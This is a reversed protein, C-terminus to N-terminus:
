LVPLSSSSWRPSNWRWGKECNWRFFCQSNGCQCHVHSRNNCTTAPATQGCPWLSADTLSSSELFHNQKKELNDLIHVPHFVFRSMGRLVQEVFCVCRCAAGKENLKVRMWSHPAKTKQRQLFCFSKKFFLVSTFFSRRVSLSHLCVSFAFPFNLCTLFSFLSNNNHQLSFPTAWWLRTQVDWSVTEIKGFVSIDCCVQPTVRSTSHRQNSRHHSDLTRPLLSSHTHLM